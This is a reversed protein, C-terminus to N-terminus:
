IQKVGVSGFTIVQHFTQGPADEPMVKKERFNGSIFIQFEKHLIKVPIM